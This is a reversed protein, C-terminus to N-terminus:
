FKKVQDLVKNIEPMVDKGDVAIKENSRNRLAVHLVSRNETKNIVEGRFMADIAQKVETEEALKVLLKMAEDNVLNKSYDILIDEFQLSFKKFREPDEEFLERMHLAQMTMFIMELNRWASTETPNYSPLM